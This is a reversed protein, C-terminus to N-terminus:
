ENGPHAERRGLRAIGEISENRQVDALTKPPCARATKRPPIVVTVPGDQHGNAADYVGSTDYGGDGTFRELEEDIQELLEPVASSDAVGNETLERAVIFGQDDVGVHLKRWQRRAKTKHKHSHWEGDGRIKLGTSDVIIHLPGEHKRTLRPVEVDRNRRSLTTHDPAKLDLGMLGLISNLFGESQRFPLRFLVRFTLATLIAVNSYRRQAGRRGNNAPTWQEIADEDFWVTVDGRKRLANDYESWNRVRYKTKYKVNVRSSMRATM